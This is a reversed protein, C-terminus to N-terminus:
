YLGVPKKKEQSHIIRSTYSDGQIGLVNSLNKVRELVADDECIFYFTATLVIRIYNFFRKKEPM